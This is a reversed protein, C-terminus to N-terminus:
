ISPNIDKEVIFDMMELKLIELKSKAGNKLAEDIRKRYGEAEEGYGNM